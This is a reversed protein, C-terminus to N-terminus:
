ALRSVGHQLHLFIHVISFRSAPGLRWYTRRVEGTTMLYYRGCRKRRKSGMRGSKWPEYRGIGAVHLRVSPQIWGGGENGEGVDNNFKGKLNKKNNKPYKFFNKMIQGNESWYNQSEIKM